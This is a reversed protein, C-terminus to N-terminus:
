QRKHLSFILLAITVKFLYYLTKLPSISSVGGQRSRMKVPIEDIKGGFKDVLLIGEPEPYDAPYNKVFLDIIKKNCCFYGSTPDTVTKRSLLKILGTLYRIGQRRFFTSVYGVQGKKLYRSGIVFDCQHHTAHHIFKQIDAPNHQGDGDLRVVLDYNYKAAWRFGTQVCNGIGLNYPLSIVHVEKLAKILDVSGDTSGDDVVLIDINPQQQHIETILNLINLRENYCPLLALTKLSKM